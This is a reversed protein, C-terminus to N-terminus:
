GCLGTAELAEAKSQYLRVSIPTGGRVRWVQTGRATVEAGSGKGRARLGGVRVVLDRADIIESEFYEVESWPESTREFIRRVEDRGRYVGSEPAVSESWDAVFDEPIRAVADDLDGRNVAEFTARVTAVNEESV